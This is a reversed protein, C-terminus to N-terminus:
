RRSPLYRPTVRLQKLEGVDLEGDHNVDLRTFEDEMFRMYEEKSVKGNSDRDMLLLLKKITPEAATLNRALTKGVPAAAILVAAIVLIIKWHRSM